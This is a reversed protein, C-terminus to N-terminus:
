KLLYYNNSKNNTFKTLGYYKYLLYLKCLEDQVNAVM